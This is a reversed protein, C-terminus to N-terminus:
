AAHIAVLLPVALAARVHVDLGRAIAGTFALWRVKSRVPYLWLFICIALGLLGACQGIYGSSKLWPHLPSRVRAAMPLSYYPWGVVCVAGLALVFLKFLLSRRAPVQVQISDRAGYGRLPTAPPTARREPRPDLTPVPGSHAM